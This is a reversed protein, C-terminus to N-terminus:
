IITYDKNKDKINQCYRYNEKTKITIYVLIEGCDWFNRIINLTKM